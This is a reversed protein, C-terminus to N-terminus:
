SFNVRVFRRKGVKILASMGPKWLTVSNVVTQKEGDLSVGGQQILRRAEAKSEAMGLTV